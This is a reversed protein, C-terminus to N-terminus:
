HQRLDRFPYTISRVSGRMVYVCVYNVYTSGDSIGNLERCKSVDKSIALILTNSYTTDLAINTVQFRSCSKRTHELSNKRQLVFHNRGRDVDLIRTDQSVLCCKLVTGQIEIGLHSRPKCLVALFTNSTHTRESKSSSVIMTHQFLVNSREMQPKHTDKEGVCMRVCVCM